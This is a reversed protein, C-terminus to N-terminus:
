EDMPEQMAEPVQTVPAPRPKGAERRVMFPTALVVFFIRV